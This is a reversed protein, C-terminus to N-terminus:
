IEEAKHLVPMKNGVLSQRSIVKAYGLAGCASDFYLAPDDGNEPVIIRRAVVTDLLLPFAFGKRREGCMEIYADDRYLQQCASEFEERTCPYPLNVWLSHCNIHRFDEWPDNVQEPYPNTTLELWHRVLTSCYVPYNPYQEMTRMLRGDWNYCPYYDDEWFPIIKATDATRLGANMKMGVDAYGARIFEEISLPGLQARSALAQETMDLIKINHPYERTRFQSLFDATSTYKPRDIFIPNAITPTAGNHAMDHCYHVPFQEGIKEIDSFAIIITHKYTSQRALASLSVAILHPSDYIPLM